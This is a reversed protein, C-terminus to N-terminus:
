FFWLFSEGAKPDVSETAYVYQDNGIYKALWTYHKEGVKVQGQVKDKLMEEWPLALLGDKDVDAGRTWVGGGPHIIILDKPSPSLSLLARPDFGVAILGNFDVDSFYPRAIYLEPGLDSYDVVTVLSTARWVGEFRLPKDIRKVPIEPQMVVITGDQDTVLVRHVWPFRTLLLDMWDPDPMSDMDDIYRALSTLPGDVPTFLKALKEQNPNEFQYSDTEITPNPDIYERTSEWTEKTYRKTSSWMGCGSTALAIFLLLLGTYKM